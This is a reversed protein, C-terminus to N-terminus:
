GRYLNNEEIYEYVEDPLLYRVSKEEKIQLRVYTSSFNSKIEEKLKEINEKYRNLLENQKIIEEIKDKDREMVIVKYKSVLDEAKKWTHLEKLNDSGILFCIKKNKFQKRLEELTNVNKFYAM